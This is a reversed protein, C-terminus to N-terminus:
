FEVQKRSSETLREVHRNQWYSQLQRIANRRKRFKKNINNHLYVIIWSDIFSQMHKGNGLCFLEV